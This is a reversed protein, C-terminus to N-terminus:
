LVAPVTQSNFEGLLRRLGLASERRYKRAMTQPARTLTELLTTAVVKARPENSVEIAHHTRLYDMWVYSETNVEIFAGTANVLEFAHLTDITKEFELGSNGIRKKWAWLSSKRSETAAAEYLVRLFTRRDQIDPAVLQLIQDFHRKMRGGLVEDVWLRQCNLFSTLQTKKAHAAQLFEKILFPTCIFQQVILYRTPETSSIEYRRCLVEVLRRADDEALAELHLLDITTPSGDEVGHILDAVMRRLGAVVFPSGSHALAVALRQALAVEERFPRVGICDILPYIRRGQAVLRQPLGFCLAVLDEENQREREFTELLNSVLEYDSPLARELLDHFTLPAESLSPDVRRYAIYQQVFTQFFRRAIDGPREQGRQFSFHIPVLD